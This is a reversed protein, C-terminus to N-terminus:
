FGRIMTPDRTVYHYTAFGGAVAAAAGVWVYWRGYWPTSQRSLMNDDSELAAQVIRAISTTSATGSLELPKSVRKADIDYLRLTIRDDDSAELVVFRRAGTVKSLARARKLRAQGPPAAATQDVIRAAKHVRSEPDLAIEFLESRGARIEIMEAYPARKPASIVVLHLGATLELEKPISRAEGGDISVSADEPDCDIRLAGTEEAERRAQKILQRMKPSAFRKDIKLASNLRYAGRFWRVADPADGRTYAILGRWLTLEALATTPDGVIADDLIRGEEAEIMDLAAGYEFRAVADKIPEIDVTLQSRGELAAAIPEPLDYLLGRAELARSIRVVQGVDGLEALGNVVAVGDKNDKDREKDRSKSKSRGDDDPQDAVAPTAGLLFCAAIALRKV